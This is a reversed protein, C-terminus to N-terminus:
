PTVAVNDFTSENLVRTDHSNVILGLHATSDLSLTTTGVTTWTDGDSSIFGTITSGSRELRLWAPVDDSAGTLWSTTGGTSSRRMFEVGGGPNVDLIVHPSNPALSDRLMVGAKAFTHTNEIGTVRAVIESDAGVTEQHVYHFSDSTGWIDAGAGRVTFTGNSDSASGALGTAGIDQSTWEGSLPPPPPEVDGSVAVNDFTSTNLAGTNHSTVALGIRASSGISLTTSGVTTWSTGNSSVYGTVTSGSRVLRLWAPPAQTTGPFSTTTAGTSARRMFQVIGGPRLNLIVHAANPATSARLMVGAKAHAHTNQLSTVRAIIDVDGSIGQHVYHFSDSTGWIDAGAGQVTFTGNSFSANGIRGVAGIDDSTWPAPLTNPPPPASGGTMFSRTASTKIISPDRDTAFTRSVIRWFYTTGEALPTSPTWSYTAPPSNTLKAPVNGVLTLNSSSTGLYVDYSTAFVARNWILTPTTSVGTANSAPTTLVAADAASPQFTAFAAPDNWMEDVRDRLEQYIAPKAAASIFYNHDRQWAAAYNSSANTAYASTVLTKMHTLGTHARWKIPVGAAWLKDIYAHTLWFEPWKRNVYESSELLIRVGVGSTGNSWKSLLANTINAVNLRYVVLTLSQTENNIEQILRNNFSSGQSLILDSPVPYDDELRATDIIMPDPNPHLTAYDDCNGTPETACAQDWNKLYPPGPSHISQSERTTDNWIRDFRGKFANVIAPDDALMVTEDKYNTSSVPALEFGTFNASGFAVLGQGVFIMTKWHSIEPYSTPNFRIRIPVGDAALSYFTARTNPDNEFIANRDGILRVPLGENHRRAIAQAIEGDTFLWIAVDLRVQEANIKQLLVTRVNEIAPFYIEDAAAAPSVFSAAFMLTLAACRRLHRTWGVIMTEKGM